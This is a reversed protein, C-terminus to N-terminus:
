EEVVIKRPEGDKEVDFGLEKLVERAAETYDIKDM